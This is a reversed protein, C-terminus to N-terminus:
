FLISEKDEFLEEFCELDEILVIDHVAIHLGIINEKM